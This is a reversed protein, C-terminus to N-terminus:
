LCNFLQFDNSLDQFRTTGEGEAHSARRDEARMGMRRFRWLQDWRRQLTLRRLEEERAKWPVGPILGTPSDEAITVCM